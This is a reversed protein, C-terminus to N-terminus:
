RGPLGLIGGLVGGAASNGLWHRPRLNSIHDSGGLAVPLIHDIQWGRTTTKGYEGFAVQRGDCDRPVGTSRDCKAFVVFKLAESVYM